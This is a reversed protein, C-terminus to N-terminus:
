REFSNQGTIIQNQDKLLTFVTYADLEAIDTLHEGRIGCVCTTPLYQDPNLVLRAAESVARAKIMCRGININIFCLSGHASFNPKKIGTNLYTYLQRRTQKSGEGRTNANETGTLVWIAAM